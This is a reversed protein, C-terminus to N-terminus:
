AAPRVVVLGDVVRVQGLRGYTEQYARVADDWVCLPEGHPAYARAAGDWAWDDRCLLAGGVCAYAILSFRPAAAPRLTQAVYRGYTRIAKCMEARSYIFERTLTEADGWAWGGAGLPVPISIKLEVTHVTHEM